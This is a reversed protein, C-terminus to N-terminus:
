RRLLKFAFSTGQRQKVAMYIWLMALSELLRANTLPGADVPDFGVDAALQAAVRKAEDDDGAYFMTAAEDEFHPEAMNAAGTTNFIKVVRAGPVWQAVQEAASTTHGLYLGSLDPLLPNTCDLLVKGALSGAAQLAVQTTEWPTAVLIVDGFSAAEAVTGARSGNGTSHLVRQVKASEPDRVGYMVEHGRAAWATGLTAGVNGAGLIGIRM